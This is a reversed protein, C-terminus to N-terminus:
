RSLRAPGAATTGSGALTRTDCPSAGMVVRPNRAVRRARRRPTVVAACAAGNAYTVVDNVSPTDTTSRPVMETTLVIATPLLGKPTATCGLPVRTYTALQPESLTDTISVAVRVTTAVTGTCSPGNPTATFGAPVRTYTVLWSEADTDTISVAVFPTTAVTVTPLPGNPTATSGAP